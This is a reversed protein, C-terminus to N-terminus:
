RLMQLTSTSGSTEFNRVADIANCYGPWYWCLSYVGFCKEDHSLVINVEWVISLRLEYSPVDVKIVEIAIGVFIERDKEDGRTGNGRDYLCRGTASVLFKCPYHAKLDLTLDVDHVIQTNIMESIPSGNGLDTFPM